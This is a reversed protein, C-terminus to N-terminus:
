RTPPLSVLQARPADPYNSNRVNLYGGVLGILKSVTLGGGLGLLGVNPFFSIVTGLVIVVCQVVPVAIAIAKQADTMATQLGKLGQTGMQVLQGSGQIKIGGALMLPIGFQHLMKEVAEIGADAQVAGMKIGTQLAQIKAAFSPDLGTSNVVSLVKEIELVAADIEAPAEKLLPGADKVLQGVNLDKPQDSM